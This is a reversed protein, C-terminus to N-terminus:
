SGSRDSVSLSPFAMQEQEEQIIIKPKLLM